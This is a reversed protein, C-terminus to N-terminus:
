TLAAFVWIGLVVGVVVAVVVLLAVWRTPQDSPTGFISM